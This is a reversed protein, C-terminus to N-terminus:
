IMPDPNGDVQPPPTQSVPPENKPGSQPCLLKEKIEIIDEFVDELFNLLSNLIKFLLVGIPLIIVFLLGVVWSTAGTSLFLKVTLLFFDSVLIIGLLNLYNRLRQLDSVEQKELSKEEQPRQGTEVSWSLNVVFIGFFVFTM